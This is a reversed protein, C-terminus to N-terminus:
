NRWKEENEDIKVWRIILEQAFLNMKGVNLCNEVKEKVPVLTITSQYSIQFVEEQM